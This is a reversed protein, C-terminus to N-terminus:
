HMKARAIARKFASYPQAGNIFYDNIVFAPTGSIGARTSAAVDADVTPKHIRRDLAYQFKAMDLGMSQAYKELQSRKIGPTKQGAFLLDHMQWFGQNGRQAKAELAAEHALPADKHFPLPKNRWVIKVEHGYDRLVQKLTTNVRSCYPCQFDSFEQIVIAADSAGKFPAGAPPAGVDKRAPPPPTKASKM